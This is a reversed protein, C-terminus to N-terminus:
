AFTLPQLGNEQKRLKVRQATIGFAYLTEPLCDSHGFVQQRTCIEMVMVIIVTTYNGPTMFADISM